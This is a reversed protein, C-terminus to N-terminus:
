AGWWGGDNGQVRARARDEFEEMLQDMEWGRLVMKVNELDREMVRLHEVWM